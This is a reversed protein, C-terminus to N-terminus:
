TFGNAARAQSAIISKIVFALARILPSPLQIFFFHKLVRFSNKNLKDLPIYAASTMDPDIREGFGFSFCCGAGIAVGSIKNM